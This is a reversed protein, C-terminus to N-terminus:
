SVKAWDDIGQHPAFYPGEGKYECAEQDRAEKSITLEEKSAIGKQQYNAFASSSMHNFVTDLDTFPATWNDIKKPTFSMKGYVIDFSNGRKESLAAYGILEGAKLESGPKLDTRVDIHQVSFQWAGMPPLFSLLSKPAIWIEGELNLDPENRLLTVYGNYPAYIEVTQGKNYEPKVWFYHKM